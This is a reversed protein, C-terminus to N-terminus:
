EKNYPSNIKSNENEALILLLPNHSSLSHNKAAM